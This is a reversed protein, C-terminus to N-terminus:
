FQAPRYGAVKAGAETAFCQEPTTRSYWPSAPVHYIMSSENGKIPAKAPCDYRSVPAYTSEDANATGGGGAARRLVVRAVRVTVVTNRCGRASRLLVRKERADVTLRWRTKVAVYERVYRCRAAKRPLWEAPDADSKTRNSSASVAVLSRRDGLDNAFRTRTGANWRRAGSDWAEALPVMHDIDFASADRTRTGDYYSLWRGGRLQCDGVVRPKVRAEQVLVRDRTDCGDGRYSWHRFKDRDYGRRLERADTLSKTMAILRKKVIAAEAAPATAVDAVVMAGTVGLMM